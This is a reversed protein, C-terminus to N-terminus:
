EPEIMNPLISSSINRVEGSRQLGNDNARKRGGIFWGFNSPKVNGVTDFNCWEAGQEERSAM